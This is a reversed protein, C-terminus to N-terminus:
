LADNFRNNHTNQTKELFFIKEKLIIQKKLFYKYEKGLSLRENKSEGLSVRDSKKSKAKIETGDFSGM